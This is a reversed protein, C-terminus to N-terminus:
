DGARRAIGAPRSRAGRRRSVTAPDRRTAWGGVIPSEALWASPHLPRQAARLRREPDLPFDPLDGCVYSTVWALLAVTRFTRRLRFDRNGMLALGFGLTASLLVSCGTFTFSVRVSDSFKRDALADAYDRFGVLTLLEVFEVRYPSVVIGYRTPLLSFAGIALLAPAAM